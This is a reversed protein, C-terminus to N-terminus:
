ANILPRPVLSPDPFSPGVSHLPTRSALGHIFRVQMCQKAGVGGFRSRASRWAEMFDVVPWHDNGPQRRRDAFVKKKREKVNVPEPVQCPPSCQWTPPWHQCFSLRQTTIVLSCSPPIGVHMVQLKVGPYSHWPAQQCLLHAVVKGKYRM